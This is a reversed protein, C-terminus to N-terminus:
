ENLLINRLQSTSEKKRLWPVASGVSCCDKIASDRSLSGQSGECLKTFSFPKCPLNRCIVPM